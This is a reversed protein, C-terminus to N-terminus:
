LTNYTPEPYISQTAMPGGPGGGSVNKALDLERALQSTDPVYPLTSINM